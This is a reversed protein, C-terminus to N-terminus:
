ALRWKNNAAKGGVVTRNSCNSARYFSPDPNAKDVCPVGVTCRWWGNLSSNAIFSYESVWTGNDSTCGCGLSGSRFHCRSLNTACHSTHSSIAVSPAPARRFQPRITLHSGTCGVDMAFDTSRRFRVTCMLTVTQGWTWVDPCELVTQPFDSVSLDM